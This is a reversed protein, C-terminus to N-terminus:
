WGASERPCSALADALLRHLARRRGPRRATAAGDFLGTFLEVAPRLETRDPLRYVRTGGRTSVLLWSGGGFDGALDKWPAIQFSLLAEDPALAGRM